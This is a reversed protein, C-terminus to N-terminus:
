LSRGFVKEKRRIALPWSNEKLNNSQCSLNLLVRFVDSFSAFDM